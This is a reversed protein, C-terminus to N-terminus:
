RALGFLRDHPANTHCGMCSAMKGSAEITRGRYTMTAYVWGEDTGPTDLALKMMIFLPGPTDPTYLKGDHGRIIESSARYAMSGEEVQKPNWSQKVIVQGVPATSAIERKAAAAPGASKMLLSSSLESTPPKVTEVGYAQPDRAFLYYLKQGHTKPDNSRTLLKSPTPARCLAPAWNAVDSVRTWSPYLYAVDFLQQSFREDVTPIEVPQNSPSEQNSLSAPSAPTAQNTRESQSCSWLGAALLAMLAAYRKDKM